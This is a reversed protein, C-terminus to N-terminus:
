LSVAERAFKSFGRELPAQKHKGGFSHHEAQRSLIHALHETFDKERVRRIAGELHNIIRRRLSVVVTRMRSQQTVWQRRPLSAFIGIM